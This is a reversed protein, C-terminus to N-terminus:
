DTASPGEILLSVMLHLDGIQLVGPGDAQFHIVLEVAGTDEGEQDMEDVQQALDAITRHLRDREEQAIDPQQEIQEKLLRLRQATLHGVHWEGIDAQRDAYEALRELVTGDAPGQENAMAIQEAKELPLQGDSRTRNPGTSSSGQM